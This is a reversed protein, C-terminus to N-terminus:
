GGPARRALRRLAARAECTLFAEPVGNALTRLHARAAPTGLCELVDVARLLRCREASWGELRKLLATVRRQVELSKAPKLAKRLYPVAEEGLRQLERTAKERVAFRANDLDATLRTIRDPDDPAVPRLVEKLFPVSDQPAAVLAATAAYAPGLSGSLDAWLSELEVRGLRKRKPRDEDEDRLRAAVVRAREAAPLSVFEYCGPTDTVEELLLLANAAVAPDESGAARRLAPAWAPGPQGELAVGLERLVAGRIEPETLGALRKLLPRLRALKAARVPAFDAASLGFDCHLTRELLDLGGAREPLRPSELLALVREFFAPASVPFLACLGDRYPRTLRDASGSPDKELSRKRDHARFYAELAQRDESALLAQLEALFILEDRYEDYGERVALALLSARNPMFLRERGALGRELAQRGEVADLCLLREIDVPHPGNNAQTSHAILGRLEDILAPTFQKRRLWPRGWRQGIVEALQQVTRPGRLLAPLRLGLDPSDKRYDALNVRQRALEGKLANPCVAAYHWLAERFRYAHPGRARSVERLVRVLLPVFRVDFQRVAARYIPEAEGDARGEYCPDARNHLVKETRALDLAPQEDLLDWFNLRLKARVAEPLGPAAFAARLRPAALERLRALETRSWRRLYNGEVLVRLAQVAAEAHAPDRLLGLAMDLGKANGLYGIGHAAVQRLHPSTGGLLRGFDEAAREPDAAALVRAQAYHGYSDTGKAEATLEKLVRDYVDGKRDGVAILVSETHVLRGFEVEPPPNLLWAALRDLARRDRTAYLEELANRSLAPDTRQVLRFLLDMPRRDLAQQWGDALFLSQVQGRRVLAPADASPLFYVAPQRVDSLLRAPVLGGPNELQAKYCLRPTSNKKGGVTLLEYGVPGIEVSYWHQLAVTLVDGPRVGKGRLVRVVELAIKGPSHSKYRAAVVVECGLLEDWGM